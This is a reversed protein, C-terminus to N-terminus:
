RNATSVGSDHNTGLIRSYRYLLTEARFISKSYRPRCGVASSFHSHRLWSSSHRAQIEVAAVRSDSPTTGSSRSACHYASNTVM